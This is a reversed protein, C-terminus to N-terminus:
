NEVIPDVSPNLERWEVTGLKTGVPRNYASLPCHLSSQSVRMFVLSDWKMWASSLQQNRTRCSSLIQRTFGHPNSDGRECWYSRQFGSESSRGVTLSQRAFWEPKGATLQPRLM